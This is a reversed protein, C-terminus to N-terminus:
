RWVKLVLDIRKGGSAIYYKSLAFDRESAESSNLSLLPRCEDRVEFSFEYGPLLEALRELIAPELSPWISAQEILTSSVLADDLTINGPSTQGTINFFYSTNQERLIHEIVFSHRTSDYTTNDFFLFITAIFPRSLFVESVTSEQIIDEVLTNKSHVTNNSLEIPEETALGKVFSGNYTRKHATLLYPPTELIYELGEFYQTKQKIGPIDRGWFSMRLALKGSETLYSEVGLYKEQLYPAIARQSNNSALPDSPILVIRESRNSHQGYTETHDVRLLGSIDYTENKGSLQLRLLSAALTRSIDTKAFDDSIKAADSIAQGITKKSFDAYVPLLEIASVDSIGVSMMSLSNDLCDISGMLECLGRTESNEIQGMIEHIDGPECDVLPAEEDPLQSGASLSRLITEFTDLLGALVEFLDTLGFYPEDLNLLPNHSLAAEVADVFSTMDESRLDIYALYPNIGKDDEQGGCLRIAEKFYLLIKEIEHTLANDIRRIAVSQVTEIRFNSLSSQVLSVLSEKALDDLNEDERTSIYHASTRTLEIHLYAIAVVSIVIFVLLDAVAAQARSNSSISENTRLMM